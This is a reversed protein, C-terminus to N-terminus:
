STKGRKKPEARVEWASGTRRSTSVPRDTAADGGAARRKGARRLVRGHASELLAAELPCRRSPDNGLAEAFASEAQDQHGQAALLLGRLRGVRVAETPITRKHSWEEMTVLAIEADEYRGLGILADVALGRWPQIGPEDRGVMTDWHQLPRVAEVVGNLDGRAHSLRAGAIAAWVVSAGDGLM